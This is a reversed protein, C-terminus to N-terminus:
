FKYSLSPTFTLAEPHGQSIAYYFRSKIGLYFHNDIKKEYQIGIFAGAEELGSNKYNREELGLGFISADIEQQASRFYFLGASLNVNRNRKSFAREFILQYFDNFHRITFDQIYIPINSPAFNIRRKNVSRSYGLGMFLRKGISYKLELGSINGIINKDYFQSRVNPIIIEEYDSVFFNGQLGYNIELRIKKNQGNSVLVSSISLLFLYITKM